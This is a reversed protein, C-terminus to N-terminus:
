DGFFKKFAKINEKIISEALEFVADKDLGTRMPYIPEIIQDAYIETIQNM